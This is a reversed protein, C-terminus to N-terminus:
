GVLYYLLLKQINHDESPLVYRVIQIFLQPIAEGAIIAMVAKKMATAKAEPDNGELADKIEAYSAQKDALVLLTCTKEVSSAM